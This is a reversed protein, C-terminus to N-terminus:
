RTLKISWKKSPKTASKTPVKLSMPQAVVEHNFSEISTFRGGLATYLEICARAYQSRLKIADIRSTLAAEQAELMQEYGHVGLLYQEVAMVENDKSAKVRQSTFRQQNKLSLLRDRILTSDSMARQVSQLYIQEQQQSMLVRREYQTKLRRQDFLPQTIGGFLTWFVRSGDLLQKLDASRFGSDLTFNISPFRNRHAAAVDADLAALQLWSRQVDNRNLVYKLLVDNMRFASPSPVSNPLTLSRSAVDGKTLLVQRTMRQFQHKQAQVQENIRARTQRSKLVDEPRGHGSAYNDVVVDSQKRIFRKRDHMLELIQKAEVAEVWSSLMRSIQEHKVREFEVGQNMLRLQAAREDAKLKRWVDPRWTLNLALNYNTQTQENSLARQRSLGLDLTPRSARRASQYNKEALKVTFYAQKLVPSDHFLQTVLSKTYSNVLPAIWENLANENDNMPPYHGGRRVDSTRLQMDTPIAVHREPPQRSPLHSCGLLLACMLPLICRVMALPLANSVTRLLRM